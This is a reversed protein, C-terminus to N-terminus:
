FPPVLVAGGHAEVRAAMADAADAAFDVTWASPADGVPRGLGAVRREGIRVVPDHGSEPGSVDDDWGLVHAYFDAVARVDDAGLHLWCPLGELRPRDIETM